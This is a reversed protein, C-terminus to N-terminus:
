IGFRCSPVQFVSFLPISSLLSLVLSLVHFRLFLSLCESNLSSSSPIRIRLVLSHFDYGWSTPSSISLGLMLPISNLIRLVLPHFEFGSFFMIRRPIGILLHQYEYGPSCPSAVWSWYCLTLIWFWSFPCPSLIGLLLYLFESDQSPSHLESGRSYTSPIQFASFLSFYSPIGVVFAHYESPRSCPSPVCFRLFLPFCKSNWSCSSPAQIGLVLSHFDYGQSCPSSIRLGLMLPISSLTRLGLPISSLPRDVRPHFESVQSCRSPVCFGSFLLISGPIGLLLHHSQSHWSCPFPVRLGLLLPISNLVCFVFTHFESDQSFPSLIWFRSFVIISCQVWLVFPYFESDQFFLFSSPIRLVRLHLEFGLFWPHFEWSWWWPSLFWFVSLLPM